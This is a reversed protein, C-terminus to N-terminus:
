EINAMKMGVASLVIVFVAISTIFGYAQSEQMFQHVAIFLATLLIVSGVSSVVEFTRKNM